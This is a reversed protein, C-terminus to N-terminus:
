LYEKLFIIDNEVKAVTQNYNTKLFPIILDLKNIPYDRKKNIRKKADYYMNKFKAPTTNIRHDSIFDKIRDKVTPANSTLKTEDAYYFITAWQLVSFKTRLEAEKSQSNGKLKNQLIKITENISFSILAENLEPKPKETQSPPLTESELEPFYKLIEAKTSEIVNLMLSYPCNPQSKELQNSHDNYWNIYENLHILFRDELDIGIAKWHENKTLKKNLQTSFKEFNERANEVKYTFVSYPRQETRTKYVVDINWRLAMSIFQRLEYESYWIEIEM